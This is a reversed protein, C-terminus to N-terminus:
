QELFDASIQLADEPTLKGDWPMRGRALLVDACACVVLVNLAAFCCVGACTRRRAPALFDAPLCQICRQECCNEPLPSAALAMHTVPVGLGCLPQPDVCKSASLYLTGTDAAFTINASVGAAADVLALNSKKGGEMPECTGAWDQTAPVWFVVGYHKHRCHCFAPTGVANQPCPRTACGTQGSLDTFTGLGCQKCGLQAPLDQFTGPTCSDCSLAATAAQFQGAACDVCTTAGASPSYTGANCAHCAAEGVVPQYRGAACDDCSTRGPQPQVRGAACAACSAAGAAASFHGRACQSCSAAQTM